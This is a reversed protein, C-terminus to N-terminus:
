DSPVTGKQLGSPRFGGCMYTPSPDLFDVGRASPLISQLELQVNPKALLGAHQPIKGGSKSPMSVWSAHM